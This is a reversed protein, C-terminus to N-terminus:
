ADPCLAASTARWDGARTWLSNLPLNTDPPALIIFPLVNLEEAEICKQASIANPSHRTALIALFAHM